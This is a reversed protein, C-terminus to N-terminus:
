ASFVASSEGFGELGFPAHPEVPPPPVRVEGVWAVRPYSGVPAEKTSSGFSDGLADGWAGLRMSKPSDTPRLM